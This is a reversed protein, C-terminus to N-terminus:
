NSCSLVVGQGCTPDIITAGQKWKTLLDYKEIVWKAWKLPTFVRGTSQSKM